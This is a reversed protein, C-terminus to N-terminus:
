LALNFCSTAPGIENAILLCVGKQFIAESYIPNFEIAKAYSSLAERLSLSERFIEGISFHM